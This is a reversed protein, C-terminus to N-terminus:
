LHQPVEKHIQLMEMEGMLAEASLGTKIGTSRTAGEVMVKTTTTTTVMKTGTLTVHHFTTVVVVVVVVVPKHHLAMIGRTRAELLLTTRLRRKSLHVKRHQLNLFLVMLLPDLLAMGNLRDRARTTTQHKTLTQVVVKNQFLLMQMERFWLCM